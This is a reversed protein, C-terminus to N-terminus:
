EPPRRTFLIIDGNSVAGNTPDYTAPVFDKRATRFNADYDGDPGPSLLVYGYTGVTDVYSWYSYTTNDALGFPDVPYRDIYAIPTTLTAFSSDWSVM